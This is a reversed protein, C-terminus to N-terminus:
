PNDPTNYRAQLRDKHIASAVLTFPSTEILTNLAAYFTERRAADFLFTFAGKTRRIEHEHLIVQDHGFHKFKFRLMSPAAITAYAEKQYICFTLVFMPYAPDISAM